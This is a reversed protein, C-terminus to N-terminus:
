KGNPRKIWMSSSNSSSSSRRRLHDHLEYADQNNNNSNLEPTVDFFPTNLTPSTPSEAESYGYHHHQHPNRMSATRKPIGGHFTTPTTTATTNISKSLKGHPFSGLSISRRVNERIRILNIQPPQPPHTPTSHSISSAPPPSVVQSPQWLQQQTIDDELLIKSSDPDYNTTTTTTTTIPQDSPIIENLLEPPLPAVCLLPFVGKQGTMANIGLAWGDDFKAALCILDDVQLGLEDEMQPPYPHVVIHLDEPRPQQPTAVAGAAGAAATSSPSSTVLPPPEQLHIASSITPESLTPVSEDHHSVLAHRSGTEARDVNNHYDDRSSSIYTKFGHTDKRVRKRRLCFCGVAFCLLVAGVVSGVVIGIIAGVGLRNCSVKNCCPDSNNSDCYQCATDTDSQFGCNDPENVAGEVCNVADSGSFGEWNSCESKLNAIANSRTTTDSCTSIDNTINSVSNVWDDCTSQCLPPPSVNHQYSCSLSEQSQTFRACLRSLSYRAYPTNDDNTSGSCGLQDMYLASTKAYSIISQDFSSVDTANAMFTYRSTLSSLDIYYQSFAPCAESSSLSLCNTTTSSQAQAKWTAVFFVALLAASCTFSSSSM